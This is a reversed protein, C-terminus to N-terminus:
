RASQYWNVTKRLGDKLPTSATWNFLERARSTDLCRRPQGDPKAPDWRISGDFGVLVTILEALERISIEEGTGLNVPEPDDYREMADIIGRAADAVYLYERTAKGTGWAMFHDDGQEKAEICKRILAAHAHSSEPDFDDHPGYLNTPMLYITNLGFQERYAQGQVLLMKKALGYPANTEEPYGKWLDEERFPVPTYKPYSCITGIAVFKRVAAQRAQELAISGMMLNDYYFTAPNARNIGIGGAVAALHIVIQPRFERYAREAGETKRLDFDRSRPVSIDSYGRGVLENLVHRGLFGSGGTVLIRTQRDLVPKKNKM